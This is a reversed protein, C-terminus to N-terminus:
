FDVFDDTLSTHRAKWDLLKIHVWFGYIGLTIITLFWWKLWHGFLGIGTGSFQLRSGDIVTNEIEWRYLNCVAWPVGLGLTFISIIVGLISWAVYGLLSGDFYSDRGSRFQPNM